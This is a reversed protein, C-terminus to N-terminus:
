VRHYPDHVHQFRVPDPYTLTIVNAAFMRFLGLDWTPECAPPTPIV